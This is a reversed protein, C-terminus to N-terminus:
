VLNVVEMAILYEADIGLFELLEDATMSELLVEDVEKFRVVITGDEITPDIADYSQAQGGAGYICVGPIDLADERAEVNLTFDVILTSM